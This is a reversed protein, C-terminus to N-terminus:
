SWLEPNEADPTNNFKTAWVIHFQFLGFPVPLSKSGIKYVLGRTLFKWINKIRQLNLMDSTCKKKVHTKLTLDSDLWVGLYKVIQSRNVIAGEIRLGDSAGKKVQTINGLIIFESKSNNMKLRISSM